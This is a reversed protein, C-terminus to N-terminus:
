VEQRMEQTEKEKLSQAEKWEPPGKPGQIKAGSRTTFVSIVDNFNVHELM